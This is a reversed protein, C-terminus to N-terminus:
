KQFARRAIYMELVTQDTVPRGHNRLAQEILTREAAPIDGPKADILRQAPIDFFNPAGAYGALGFTPIKLAGWWSGPAAPTQKSMIQDVASRIEDNTAKKGTRTQVADVALDLTGRINAIANRENATWDKEPKTLTTIGYQGLTDKLIEDKTRFDALQENAKKQDGKRISLQMEALQKFEVDGLKGRWQLLNSTAFTEQDDAAARMLSYYTPMDTEVPVGKALKEAYTRLSARSPGSLQTWVNTPIKAIDHTADVITYAGTLRNEETDRDTKEKIASEHEIREMVADRLKPDDIARAKERQDSLTGGAAVIADSQKQADARTSADDLAKIIRTQADGDIQGKAEDFYISAAKPKDLALLRDIVGVHTANQAKAVASTIEEPGMGLRPGQAKIAGTANGLEIAIRNPDLANQVAANTANDVYSKLEGSEYNQMEGLTHRRVTLDLNQQHESRVKAFAERQRDTALGGAVEDAKTNFDNVVSEPLGLADKGKQALAGTGPTYLRENSWDSLQNSADLVATQDASDRAQKAQEAAMNGMRDALQQGVSGVAALASGIHGQAEAVGAGESLATEAAQKRVGPLPALGVQRQGYVRPM